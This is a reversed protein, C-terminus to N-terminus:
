HAHCELSRLKRGRDDQLAALLGLPGDASAFTAPIPQEFREPMTAALIPSLPLLTGIVLGEVQRPFALFPSEQFLAPAATTLKQM